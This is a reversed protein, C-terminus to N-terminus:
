PLDVKVRALGRTEMQRDWCELMTEEAWKLHEQQVAVADHVPLCVIDKKIGELMVQKLIQGEFNQAYIGWGSFLELKPYLKHCAAVLTDFQTNDIKNFRCLSRTEEKDSSGMAFTIFSKVKQRIDKDIGVLGAEDAIDEYPTEGAHVGANVALNLRLHNASFDVEGIPQNNILTNIRLRIKRDPLSQFPTYLRGGQLINNKYKLQVPGKCAWQQEKLFENIQILEQTEYHDEPLHQIAEWGEDPTNAILYPPEIPQEIKLFYEWLMWTLTPLPSIRATVPNDKYAKGERYDVFKNDKLYDVITRMPRYSLGLRRTWYNDQSYFKSDMPVLLWNRQYMVFVLNLLIINWHKKQKEVDASNRNGRTEQLFSKEVVSQNFTAAAVSGTPLELPRIWQHHDYDDTPEEHANSVLDYLYQAHDEPTNHM